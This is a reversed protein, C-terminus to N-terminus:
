TRIFLDEDSKGSSYQGQTNTPPNSGPSNTNNNGGAQQASGKVEISIPNSELKAGNVVVSAAGITFKGEKKPSLVYSLSISQSMNGNIIQMSTSQNPGSYVDFDSLNPAKFNSASANVSFTLQFMEGAAVKNKSVQATFKQSFVSTATLLFLILFNISKKNQVLTKNVSISM